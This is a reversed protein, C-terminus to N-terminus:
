RNKALAEGVVQSLEAKRFPKQIFGRAGVDLITRAESDISYGSAIVAIIDPNIKKMEVFTQKGGMRPMIMDLLVLDVSAHRKRYLEIADEGNDCILVTYGLSELMNGAVDRVMEEDEVLLITASGKEVPEAKIISVGSEAEDFNLIPLYIRFTSGSQPASTVDIAGKHNRITGYVAALGMGTGKGQEKTTFFPEFIRQVLGEDMGCGTDGVCMCLYQGPDVQQQQKACWRDDLEVIDTDFRMEGGAPMADRANLALNLVASQLQTPDGLVMPPNANLQQRITISKDISHKLLNVVEFVIRHMDVSVSLYKGKRSFALLQATLDAARKVGLLINDAYRTLLENKDVEERLLEGFGLIGALQNNFDHAIGGALQGIAQMKDSQRLQEEVRRHETVDKTFALFRKEDLKVADVVWTGASGDKRIYTFEGSARGQEGLQRFHKKFPSLEGPAVLNEIQMSLLEERSYGTLRCAAENVDLYRSTEDSVFIGDPAFKIYNRFKAESEKLAKEAQKIGTVDTTITAFENPGPSVASIMLHKKMPPYYVMFSCPNGTQAVEDYQKLYPASESQYVKTALKGLADDKSIGTITSFAKNCDVIRYDIAHGDENSVIEHLVVMESMADFLTRFKKEGARLAAESNKRKTIDYLSGQVFRTKGDEDLIARGIDRVWRVEGGKTRIRYENDAVFGAENQLRSGQRHILEVDDAHVLEDWRVAGSTFDRSEYGCIERVTGYFLHPKFTLHSAQYAIGEFNELFLRHNQESKRLAEEARRSDTVDIGISLVGVIEGDGDHLRSNSWAIIREEGGRTNIPNEYQTFEPMSKLVEAFVQPIAEQLRLPIFQKFWNRGLVEDRGYGTLKEAYDGFRTIEANKNLTVVIVHATQLLNESFKKQSILAANNAQVEENLAILEENSSELEEKAAEMEENVSQLEENTSQVEENASWLEQNVEDKEDIIAQLYEKTAQMDRKLQTLEDAKDGEGEGAPECSSHDPTALMPEREEFVILCCQEGSPLAMPLASIDIARNRGASEIKVNKKTCPRNKNKVEEIVVYLDPMLGEVAMKSLKLSAEGNAPELFPAVKGRFERIHLNGDVLVCPPAYKRLLMEDILGTVDKGRMSKTLAPMGKDDGHKSRLTEPCVPFSYSPRRASEIKTYMNSKIDIQRFLNPFRGMTESSGLVLFGGPKLAFHFLPIVTEQFAESFYILLNRCSVLDIRPFPPDQTVDQVAFVCRDRIHKIVKFGDGEPDFYKERRAEDINRCSNLSYVASRASHIHREVIDTGFLQVAAQSKTEELYEHISIALSYVEEGTSCGPVWIRVSMRTSVNKVLQPYVTNKLALYLHPDRFFETFSLLLDDYLREVEEPRTRLFDLYAAYSPLKALTRRRTLRRMITSQRYQTFDIQASKLLIKFIEELADLEQPAEPLAEQSYGGGKGQSLDSDKRKKMSCNEDKGSQGAHKIQKAYTLIADFM